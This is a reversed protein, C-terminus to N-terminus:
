GGAQRDAQCVAPCSSADAAWPLESWRVARRLELLLSRTTHAEARFVSRRHRRLRSETLLWTTGPSKLAAPFRLDPSRQLLPLDASICSLRPCPPFCLYPVSPGLSPTGGMRELGPTGRTASPLRLSSRLSSSSGLCNQCSFLSWVVALLSSLQKSSSLSNIAGAIQVYKSSLNRPKLHATSQEQVIEGFM